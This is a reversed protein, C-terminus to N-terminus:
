PDLQLQLQRGIGCGCFCVIWAADAVLMVAWPLVPDQVWQALGLIWGADEHISTANMLWQAVIPVGLWVKLNRTRSNSVLRKHVFVNRNTCVNTDHCYRQISNKWFLSSIFFLMIGRKYAANGLFYLNGKWFLARYINLLIDYIFTGSLQTVHQSIEINRDDTVNTIIFCWTAMSRKPFSGCEWGVWYKEAMDKIFSYITM